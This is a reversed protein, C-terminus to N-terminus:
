ICSTVPIPGIASTLLVLHLVALHPSDTWCGPPSAHHWQGVISHDLFLFTPEVYLVAVFYCPYLKKLAM